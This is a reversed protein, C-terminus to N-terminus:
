PPRYGGLYLIGFYGLSSLAALVAVAGIALVLHAWGVFALLAARGLYSAPVWSSEGLLTLDIAQLWYGIVNLAILSIAAISIGKLLRMAGRRFYPAHSAM